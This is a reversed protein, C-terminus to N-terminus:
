KETEFIDLKYGEKLKVIAKKTRKRKLHPINSHRYKKIKPPLNVMWVKEVKVGFLEEVARKVDIKTAEPHVLFTYKNESVLGLAKESLYPRLLVKTAEMKSHPKSM